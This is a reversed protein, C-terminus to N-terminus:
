VKSCKGRARFSNSYGMPTADVRFLDNKFVYTARYIMTSLYQNTDSELGKIKFLFTVRKANLTEIKGTEVVTGKGNKFSVESTMAEADYSIKAELPIWGGSSHTETLKCNLTEASAASVPLGCSLSLFIAVFFSLHKM